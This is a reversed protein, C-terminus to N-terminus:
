SNRIKTLFGEVTHRLAGAQKNLEEASTLVQGASNGTENAVQTVASTNSSVESVGAAAQQINRAIDKTAASQEEMATAISSAIQNIEGITKGIGQIAGVAEQTASQIGNIQTAIEDTAKATQNALSKVESAVVAFGKGAEGARAAEITANLALLNTQGAIDNILKVVDGIKQAAEALGRVTRDSREADEKARGAIRTSMEVQQSIESISASLEESASAVTQVNATAEETAAAVATTRMTTDQANRSMAQASTQMQTAAASVNEVVGKVQSELDAALALMSKRKEAEAKKQQDAMEFRSFGLKTQLAEIQRLVSGLEDDRDITVRSEYNGAAIKEFVENLQGIPGLFAKTMLRVLIIGILAALVAIVGVTISVTTFLAEAQAEERKGKEILIRYIGQAEDYAALNLPSATKIIHQEIDGTRKGEIMELAPVVGNQVFAARKSQFREVAERENQELMGQRYQDFLQTIRAANERVRGVARQAGADDGIRKDAAGEYMLEINKAMLDTIQAVNTSPLLAQRYLRDLGNNVANSGLIGACAVGLLAILMFALMITLRRGITGAFFNDVAAGLGTKRIRGAVVAVNGAKGDRIDKYLGEAARKEADTPKLRISVYGTIQNGEKLPTANALVWYYDGNKRRNKVFGRWPQGAKLTTWLDAFAAPPMDPHRVLNHPQGKLEDWTFGSAQIFDENADLIRGATDTRSVIMMGDSLVFENTTVPTNLRM